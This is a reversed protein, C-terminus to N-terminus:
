SSKIVRVVADHVGPTGDSGTANLLTLTVTDAATVTGGYIWKGSGLNTGVFVLDNVAAGTVTVTTQESAGAAMSAPTWNKTAGLFGTLTKSNKGVRVPADIMHSSLFPMIRNTWESTQRTVGLAADTLLVCDSPTHVHRLTYSCAGTFAFITQTASSNSAQVSDFIMQYTQDLECFVGNTDSHGEMHLGSFVCMGTNLGGPQVTAKIHCDTVSHEINTGFFYGFGVGDLWLGLGCHSIELNYSVIQQVDGLYLGYGPCQHVRVNSLYAPQQPSMLVGNAGSVNNGNIIMGEISLRRSAGPVGFSAGYSKFMATEEDPFSFTNKARIETLDPGDGILVASRPCEIMESIIYDGGPFYTAKQAFAAATGDTTSAALAARIAETDDTAGDGAAGYDKVNVMLMGTLADAEAQTEVDVGEFRADTADWQPVQGGTFTAFSPVTTPVPVGFGLYRWSGSVQAAAWYQGGESLGTFAVTSNSGVTASAVETLGAPSGSPPNSGRQAYVYM